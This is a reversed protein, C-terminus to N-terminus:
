AVLDASEIRLPYPAAVPYPERDAAQAVHAPRTHVPVGSGVTMTGM